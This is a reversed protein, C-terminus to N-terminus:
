PGATEARRHLEFLNSKSGRGIPYYEAGEPVQGDRAMGFDLRKAEIEAMVDSELTPLWIPVAGHAVANRFISHNTVSWFSEAVPVTPDARGTNLLLATARPRFGAATVRELVDLDDVRPTLLYTAVANLGAAELLDILGPASHAVLEMAPEGGGGFDLLAQTPSIILQDLL